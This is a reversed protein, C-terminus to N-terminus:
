APRMAGSDAGSGWTGYVSMAVKGNAFSNFFQADEQRNYDEPARASKM